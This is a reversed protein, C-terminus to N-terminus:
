QVKVYKKEKWMIQIKPIKDEIRFMLRMFRIWFVHQTIAYTLYKHRLRIHPKM